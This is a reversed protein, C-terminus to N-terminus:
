RLHRRRIRLARTVRRMLRAYFSLRLRAAHGHLVALSRRLTFYHYHLETIPPMLIFLSLELLLLLRLSTFLLIAYHRIFAYLMADPLKM